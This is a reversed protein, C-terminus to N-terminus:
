ICLGSYDNDCENEIVTDTEGHLEENGMSRNTQSTSESEKKNTKNNFSKSGVNRAEKSIPLYKYDYINLKALLEKIKFENDQSNLKSEDLLDKERINITRKSEESREKIQHEHITLNNSINITSRNPNSFKLNAKEYYTKPTKTRSKDYPNNRSLNSTLPNVIKGLNQSKYIQNKTSMLSYNLKSIAVNQNEKLNSQHSKGLNQKKNRHNNIRKIVDGLKDINTKISKSNRKDMKSSNEKQNLPSKSKQIHNIPSKSSVRKQDFQSMRLLNMYNYAM